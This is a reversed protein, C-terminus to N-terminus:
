FAAHCLASSVVRTVCFVLCLSSHPTRLHCGLVCDRCYRMQGGHLPPASWCLCSLVLSFHGSFSLWGVVCVTNQSSTVPTPIVPSSLGRWWYGAGNVEVQSVCSVSHCLTPLDNMCFMVYMINLIFPCNILDCFCLTAFSRHTIVCVATPMWFPVVKLALM